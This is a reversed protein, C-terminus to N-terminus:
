KQIDTARNIFRQLLITRVHRLAPIGGQFSDEIQMIKTIIRIYPTEGTQGKYVVRGSVLTPTEEDTEIKEDDKLFEKPLPLEVENDSGDATAAELDGDIGEAKVKEGMEKLGLELGDASIDTIGDTNPIFDTEDVDDTLPDGGVRAIVMVQTAIASGADSEILINGDKSVMLNTKLVGGPGINASDPLACDSTMMPCDSTPSNDCPMSYSPGECNLTAACDDHNNYTVYCNWGTVINGDGSGIRTIRLIQQLRQSGAIIAGQSTAAMSLILFLAIIGVVLAKKVVMKEM